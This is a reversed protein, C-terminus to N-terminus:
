KYFRTRILVASILSIAIAYTLWIFCLEFIFKGSLGYAVIVRTLELPAYITLICFLLALLSKVQYGGSVIGTNRIESNINYHLPM